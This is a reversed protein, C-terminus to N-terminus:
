ENKLSDIPRGFWNPKVFMVYLRGFCLPLLTAIAAMLAQTNLGSTKGLGTHYAMISVLAMEGAALTGYVVERSAAATPTNPYALFLPVALGIILGGLWQTLAVTSRPSIAPTELFYRLCLRPYVTMLTGGFLNGLGELLFAYRIPNDSKARAPESVSRMSKNDTQDSM